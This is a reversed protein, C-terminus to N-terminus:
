GPHPRCVTLWAEIDESPAEYLHPTDAARDGHGGALAAGDWEGTRTTPTNAQM